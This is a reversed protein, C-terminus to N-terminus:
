ASTVHTRRILQDADDGTLLQQNHQPCYAALPEFWDRDLAMQLLDEAALTLRGTRRKLQFTIGGVGEYSRYVVETCVLRNSRTFDFDFDYPKGEHFM